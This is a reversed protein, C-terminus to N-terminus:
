FLPAVNNKSELVSVTVASFVGLFSDSPESSDGSSSYDSSVFSYCTSSVDKKM